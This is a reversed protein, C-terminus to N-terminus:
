NTGYHMEAALKRKEPDRSRRLIDYRSVSANSYKDMNAPKLVYSPTMLVLNQDKHWKDECIAVMAREMKEYTVGSKILENLQIRDDDTLVHTTPTFLGGKIENFRAIFYNSKKEFDKVWQYEEVQYDSEEVDITEDGKTPGTTPSLGWVRAFVTLNHELKSIRKPNQRQRHEQPSPLENEWARNNLFTSPNKRFQKDPTAAIYGPLYALIAKKDEAKLNNWKRNCKERDVKKDYLNWFCDFSFDCDDGKLPLPTNNISKNISKNKNVINDETNEGIPTDANEVIGIPTKVSLTDANESTPHADVETHLALGGLLSKRLAESLSITRRIIQKSNPKYEM